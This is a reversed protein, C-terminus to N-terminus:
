LLLKKVGCEPSIYSYESLIQRLPAPLTSTNAPDRKSICDMSYKEELCSRTINVDVQLPSVIKKTLLKHWDLVRFFPHRQLAGFNPGAGLRQPIRVDMLGRLASVFASSVREGCRTLSPLRVMMSIPLSVSASSRFIDAVGESLTRTSISFEDVCTENSSFSYSTKYQDLEWLIVDRLPAPTTRM